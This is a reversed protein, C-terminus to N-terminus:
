CQIGWGGGRCILGARSDKGDEFTMVEKVGADFFARELARLVVKEDDVIVVRRPIAGLLEGLDKSTELTM